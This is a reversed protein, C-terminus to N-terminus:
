GPMSWHEFGLLRALEAPQDLMASRQWWREVEQLAIV